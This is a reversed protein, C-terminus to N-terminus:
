SKNLWKSALTFMVLTKGLFSRRPKQMLPNPFNESKNDHVPIVSLSTVVSGGGAVQQFYLSSCVWVIEYDV